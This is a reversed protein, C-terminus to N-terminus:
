NGCKGTFLIKKEDVFEYDMGKIAYKLSELVVSLKAEKYNATIRCNGLTQNDLEIHVGYWRDLIEAVETLTSNEFRIIDNKWDIYSEDTVQGLEMTQESYSYTAKQNPKLNLSRTEGEKSISRVEVEGTRVAVTISSEPTYSKINFSTGLVKTTVNSTKIVFPKQPNETVEFFAEGELEVMRVKSHTFDKIFKISSGSNLYVRSGDSLRVMSKQGWDTREALWEMSQEGQETRIPYHFYLFTSIGMLILLSAAIKFWLKKDGMFNRGTSVPKSRAMKRVSQYIGKKVESEEEITGEERRYLSQLRNEVFEREADSCTGDLYRKILLRLEHDKM